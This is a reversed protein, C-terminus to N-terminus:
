TSKQKKACSNEFNSGGFPPSEILERYIEVGEM